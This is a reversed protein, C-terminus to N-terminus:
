PPAPKYNFLMHRPDCVQILREQKRAAERRIERPAFGALMQYLNSTNTPKRCSTILRYSENLVPDM